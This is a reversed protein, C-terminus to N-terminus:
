VEPCVVNTADLRGGLGTELVAYDVAQEKFYLFALATYVEFFSLQGYPSSKAYSSIKPRLGDTLRALDAQQIMGEFDDEIRAGPELVRLRERVDTLHPSTYLGVKYGMGRLIYATLVCVSGKGKTGAVHLFRTTSHPNGISGLFGKIRELKFSDKYPYRSKKEYNIFSDLYTITDRYSM